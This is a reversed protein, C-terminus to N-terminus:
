RRSKTSRRRWTPSSAAPWTSRRGAPWTAAARRHQRLLGVQRRGVLAASHYQVDGKHPTLHRVKGTAVDIVYLDQNFNSEARSVLLSGDDPSWGAPPTTAARGRPWCSRADSDGVKQVYVDFRSPTTATPASPSHTRRRPELRRLHPHGQAAADPRRQDLRRRPRPRHRRRRRAAPLAPHARQRRHGHQLDTEHRTPSYHAGRVSESTFTLQVPWGGEVPVQWLQPVGTINTLFAVFPRGALLDAVPRASTSSATSPFRRWSFGRLCCLVFGTPAFWSPEFRSWYHPRTAAITAALGATGSHLRPPFRMVGCVLDGEVHRRRHQEIRPFVVGAGQAAADGFGRSSGSPSAASAGCSRTMPVSNISRYMPSSDGASMPAPTM